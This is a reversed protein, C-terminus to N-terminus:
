KYKVTILRTWGWGGVIFEGRAATTTVGIVIRQSKKDVKSPVISDISQLVSLRGFDVSILLCCGDREIAMMIGQMGTNYVKQLSYIGGYKKRYINKYGNSTQKIKLRSIFKGRKNISAMTVDRVLNRDAFHNRDGSFIWCKAVCTVITWNAYYYAKKRLNADTGSELSLTDNEVTCWGLAKDVYFNQVHPKM